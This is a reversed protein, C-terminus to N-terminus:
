IGHGGQWGPAWADGRAAPLQRTADSGVRPTVHFVLATGICPDGEDNRHHGRVARSGAREHPKRGAGASWSGFGTGDMWEMAAVEVAHYLPGGM